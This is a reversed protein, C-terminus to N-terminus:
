SPIMTPNQLNTIPSIRAEDAQPMVVVTATSTHIRGQTETQPVRQVRHVGNEFKLRSYVSVGAHSRFVMLLTPDSRGVLLDSTPSVHNASTHGDILVAACRLQPQLLMSGRFRTADGSLAASASKCGSLNDGTKSMELEQAIPFLCSCPM